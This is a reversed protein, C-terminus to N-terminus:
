IPLIQLKFPRYKGNIRIRIRLGNDIIYNYLAERITRENKKEFQRCGFYITIGLLKGENSKIILPPFDESVPKVSEPINTTTSGDPNLLVIPHSSPLAITDGETFLKFETQLPKFSFGSVSLEPADLGEVVIAEKNVNAVKLLTSFANTGQELDTYVSRVKSVQHVSIGDFAFKGYVVPLITGLLFTAVSLIWGALPIDIKM